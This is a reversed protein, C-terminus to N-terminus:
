VFANNISHNILTAGRVLSEQLFAFKEVTNGIHTSALTPLCLFALRNEAGANLELLRGQPREIASTAINRRSIDLASRTSAM